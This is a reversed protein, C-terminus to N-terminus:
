VFGKILVYGMVTSTGPTSVRARIFQANFNTTTTIQQTSSASALVTSGINYWTTGNDDSGELQLQPSTSTTGINIQIQFFKCGQVNLSPTVSSSTTLVISRDILQRMCLGSDSAQNRNISRTFSPSTGTITQVYRIRTGTLLLKPSRYIGTATIRAFSYVTFWNTGGDDSEEINVDLTPSTGSVITVPINVEYSTGFTPIIASTTTSTTIPSSASDTILAPLAMNASTVSSVAVTGTVTANLNGATAQSVNQITQSFSNQSLRTFTQVSGGTLTTVIRLRLYRFQVSGMWIVQGFAATITSVNIVPSLLAQNYIPVTQFNVNDNSGEVIFTGATATSAVQISFSKYGSCDTAAAGSTTSLINNVIATQASQGTIFLDPLSIPIIQDSAINVPRSSSITAAGLTTKTNIAALTTETSAGTPLASSSIVVAGTNVATVKSNLSSLTTETSVGSVSVPVATARLQTDTLPQSLGTSVTGSIPLPNTLKTDISALSANGTTQLAATAAGTPLPLSVASIPQTDGPKTRTSLLVDLNDTKAKILALTTQTAFDKANLTILSADLALGATTGINSTITGSVPVATARLQTDTLPQSLGTSVTGSVPLPNTLKADISTLSANGSTQLASTSAGTPLSSSAITVASSDYIIQLVDGASHTTTDFDLTLINTVFSTYGYGAGLAPGYIFTKRTENVVSYLLKLDFGSILSFDLTKSAPVFTVTGTLVSKM